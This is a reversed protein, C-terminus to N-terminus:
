LSGKPIFGHIAIMAQDNLYKNAQTRGGETLVIEDYKNAVEQANECKSIHRMRKTVYREDEEHNNKISITV